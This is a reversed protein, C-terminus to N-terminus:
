AEQTERERAHRALAAARKKAKVEESDPGRPKRPKKTVLKAEEAEIDEVIALVERLEGMTMSINLVLPVVVKKDEPVQNTEKDREPFMTPVVKKLEDENMLEYEKMIMWATKTLPQGARNSWRSVKQTLNSGRTKNEYFVSLAAFVAQMQSRSTAGLMTYLRKLAIFRFMDKTTPPGLSALGRGTKVAANHQRAVAINYDLTNLHMAVLLAKLYHTKCTPKLEFRELKM